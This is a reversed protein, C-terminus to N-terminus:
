SEERLRSPQVVRYGGKWSKLPTLLVKKWDPDERLKRIADAPKAVNARRTLADATIGDGGAKILAEIIRYREPTLPLKRIGNVIPGDDPRGLIVATTTKPRYRIGLARALAKL